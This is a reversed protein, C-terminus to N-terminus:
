KGLEEVLALFFAIKFSNKGLREVPWSIAFLYFIM